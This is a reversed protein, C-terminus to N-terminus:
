LLVKNNLWKIYVLKCQVSSFQLKCKRVGAEWEM